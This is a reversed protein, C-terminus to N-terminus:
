FPSDDIVGREADRRRREESNAVLEVVVFDTRAGTMGRGIRFVRDANGPPRVLDNRKAGLKAVIVRVVSRSEVVPMRQLWNLAEISKMM